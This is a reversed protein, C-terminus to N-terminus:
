SFLCCRTTKKRQRSRPPEPGIAQEMLRSEELKPDLLSSQEFTLRSQHLNEEFKRAAVNEDVYQIVQEPVDIEQDWIKEEMPVTVCFEGHNLRM